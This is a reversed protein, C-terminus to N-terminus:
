AFMGLRHCSGLATSQIFPAPCLHVTPYWCLVRRHALNCYLGRRHGIGLTLLWPESFLISVVISQLWTGPHFISRHSGVGEIISGPRNGPAKYPVAKQGVDWRAGESEHIPELHPGGQEVVCIGISGHMRYGQSLGISIGSIRWIHTLTPHLLAHVAAWCIVFIRNTQKVRLETQQSLM